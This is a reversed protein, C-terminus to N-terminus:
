KNSDLYPQSNTADSTATKKLTSSSTDATKELPFAIISQQFGKNTQSANIVVTNNSGQTTVNVLNGITTASFGWGPTATIVKNLSSDRKGNVVLDMDGADKMGFPAEFTVSLSEEMTQAQAICSLSAALLTAVFLKFFLKPM